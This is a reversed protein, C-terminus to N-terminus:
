GLAWVGRQIQGHMVFDAFGGADTQVKFVHEVFAVAGHRINVDVARRTTHSRRNFVRKLQFSFYFLGDSFRLSRTKLRGSNKRM